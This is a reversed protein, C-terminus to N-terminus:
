FTKSHVHVVEVGEPILHKYYSTPLLAIQVMNNRVAEIQEGPPIVEPGGILKIQLEDKLGENVREIWIREQPEHFPHNRPVMSVAKLVVPGAFASHVGFCLGSLLFVALLFYGSKKM